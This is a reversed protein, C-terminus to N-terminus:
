NDHGQSKVRSRSFRKVWHWSVHHIKRVLTM